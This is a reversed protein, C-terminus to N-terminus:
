LNYKIKDEYYHKVWVAGHIDTTLDEAMSDIVKNKLELEEELKKIYEFITKSNIEEM